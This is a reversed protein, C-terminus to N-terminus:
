TWIATRFGDDLREDYFALTFENFRHWIRTASDVRRLGVTEVFWDRVVRIVGEPENGHHKIDIGSLDSIAKRFEHQDKELM